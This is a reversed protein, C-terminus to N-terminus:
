TTAGHKYYMARLFDSGEGWRIPLPLLPSPRPGFGVASAGAPLVPRVRDDASFVSLYCGNYRDLEAPEPYDRIATQLRGWELHAAPQKRQARLEATDAGARSGHSNPYQRVM